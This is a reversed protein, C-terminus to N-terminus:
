TRRVQLAWFVCADTVGATVHLWGTLGSGDRTGATDQESLAAMTVQAPTMTSHPLALSTLPHIVVNASVSPDASSMLQSGSHSVLGTDVSLPQSLLGGQQLTQQLFTHDIQSLSPAAKTSSRKKSTHKYWTSTNSIRLCSSSPHERIAVSFGRHMLLLSSTAYVFKLIWIKSFLYGPTCLPNKNIIELAPQVVPEVCQPSYLSPQLKNQSRHPQLIEKTQLEFHSLTLGGVACHIHNM